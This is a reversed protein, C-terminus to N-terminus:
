HKALVDGVDSRIAEMAKYLPVHKTKQSGNVLIAFAMFGGNKKRLYGAVACVSVPDNMTGTKLAVRDLWDRSGGRLFAFPAQRPVVLGGYFAPFNRADRFQADLMAVLESASLENEPTLGSGSYLRPQGRDSKAGSSAGSRALFDSLVTSAEALQTPPKPTLAAALDLTILDAIYNNSYRLMRGLQERLALGDAKALVAANPPVKDHNVVVEGKVKVGMERLMQKLVLGAGRAPDSMARYIRTPAPGMPIRGGVKMLDVGEVTSREAWFTADVTAGVTDITGEIAIPLTGVGCGRVGAPKGPATPQVDLCWTGYDSGLASLPVNYATDSKELADCRDVNDCGLPGFAPHVVLRGSVDTVGSGRVQAALLLLDRHDLTSDGDGHLVLDGDLEGKKLPGAALVRTEFTKDAPWTDLAAAAVVLKTVSAPGLRTEADLAQIRNGTELDLIAASVRAGTRTLSELAKLEAHAPASAVALLSAAAYRRLPTM